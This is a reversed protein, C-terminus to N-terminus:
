RRANPKMVQHLQAFLFRNVWHRVVGYYALLDAKVSTNSNTHTTSVANAARWRLKWRASEVGCQFQNRGTLLAWTLDAGKRGACKGRGREGLQWLRKRRKERVTTIWKNNVGEEDEEDNVNLCGGRWWCWPWYLQDTKVFSNTPLHQTAKLSTSLSCMVAAASAAESQSAEAPIGTPASNLCFIFIQYESMVFRHQRRSVLWHTTTDM